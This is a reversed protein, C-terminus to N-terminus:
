RLVVFPQLNLVRAVQEAVSRAEQESAWPGLHLRFRAGDVLVEARHGLSAMERQVRARLDEANSRSSFV